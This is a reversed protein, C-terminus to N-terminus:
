PMVGRFRALVKNVDTPFKASQSPKALGQLILEDARM